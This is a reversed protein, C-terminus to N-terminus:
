AGLAARAVLGTLIAVSVSGLTGLLYYEAFDRDDLLRFRAIDEGRDRLRGGRRSRGARVHRDAAARPHRDDGWWRPPPPVALPPMRRSAAGGARPRAKTSGAAFPGIRIDWARGPVAEPAPPPVPCRRRHGATVGAGGIEAGFEIPRVLTAVFLAGARVNAILLAAIVM